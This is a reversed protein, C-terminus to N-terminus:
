KDTGGFLNLLLPFDSESKKLFTFCCFWGEGADRGLDVSFSETKLGAISKSDRFLKAGEVKHQGGVQDISKRFRL